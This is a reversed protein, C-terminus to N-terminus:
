ATAVSEIGAFTEPPVQAGDLYEYIRHVQGDRITLFIAVRIVNTAGTERVRTHIDHRQILTDGVVYREAVDYRSEVAAAFQALMQLGEAKTQTVGDFNHWVGADDAYLRDLTDGDGKPIAAFFEDAIAEISM